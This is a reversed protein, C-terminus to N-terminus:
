RKLLGAFAGVEQGNATVVSRFEMSRGNVSVAINEEMRAGDQEWAYHAKFRTDDIWSVVHNHTEGMNTVAFWHGKGTVPDFGMLDNERMEMGEGKAILECAIGWGAAASDCRYTLALKVPQNGTNLTGEGTWKGIMVEFRRADPPVGNQQAVGVTAVSAWVSGALLTSLIRATPKTM